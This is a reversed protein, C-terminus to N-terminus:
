GKKKARTPLKKTKTGRLRTALEDASMGTQTTEGRRARALDAGFLAAQKKSKPKPM